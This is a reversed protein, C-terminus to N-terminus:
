SVIELDSKEQKKYKTNFINTNRICAVEKEPKRFTFLWWANYRLCFNYFVISLIIGSSWVVMILAPVYTFHLVKVCITRMITMMIIHTCYIYLSHYGVVRLFTLKRYKQLLLSINIFLSVGILAEVLFLFPLKYEVYLENNKSGDFPNLNIRTCYYQSTLFLILLVSFIKWSTFRQLNKEALARHSALDGLAFFFYYESIDALVGANINAIHIYASVCFLLCGITIHTLTTIKLKAKVVSFIVGICFLTNLYWFHGTKRPDIILYLYSIANVGNHTFGSTLLQLTIQVVGWILLPYLINNARDFLYNNLGKKNLSRGVLMGSIIFFLPMRFGYLFLRMYNFFPYDDLALGHLDLVEYCHNFAVLIIGIGKDYDLWLWRKEKLIYQSNFLDM